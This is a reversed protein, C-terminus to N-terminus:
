NSFDLATPCQFEKKQIATGFQNSFASTSTALSRLLGARSTWTIPMFNIEREAHRVSAMARVVQLPLVMIFWRTDANQDAGLCGIEAHDFPLKYSM